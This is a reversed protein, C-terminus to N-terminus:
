GKSRFALPGPTKPEDVLPSYRGLLRRFIELGNEQVLFCDKTLLTIKLMRVTKKPILKCGSNDSWSLLLIHKDLDSM